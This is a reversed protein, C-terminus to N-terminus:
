HPAVDDEDGFLSAKNNYVIEGCIVSKRLLITQM